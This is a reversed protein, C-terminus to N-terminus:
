QGTFKAERKNILADVGEAFDQTRGALRQLDRELDLQQELTNSSSAHLAHKTYALGLTPQNALHAAQSEAISMLEDDGVCKWILGWDEAQQAPLKEALM